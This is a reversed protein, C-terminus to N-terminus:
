GVSDPQTGGSQRWDSAEDARSWRLMVIRRGPYTRIMGRENAEIADPTDGEEIWGLALHTPLQEAELRELRALMPNM